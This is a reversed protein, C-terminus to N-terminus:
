VTDRETRVWQSEPKKLFSLYLPIKWLVYLPISLLSRASIEQRGFKAWASLIAVLVLASEILLAIAPLASVGLGAAAAAIVTAGFLLMVLLSLPPIAINLALILLDLRRKDLAAKVLVPVQTMLTQLHGHEWRTRQGKAVQDQRPLMGYVIAGECLQTPSGAIALDIGLQMDEVINGSALPATRILEWPFAMGTGTLHCPFGLHTLGTPRVLNKVMFALASVATKAATGRDLSDPREMLYVAQAPRGTAAAQRTIQTLIGADVRCDADVIAVVDPPDAALFRVGFDIAYGKGRQALNTREIAIAGMERAIAATEDTCNDAVVILRDDVSLQPLLKELVPRIGLAENHAPVLVATRPAVETQAVPRPPLLVAAMCEILLVAVPLIFLLAIAGLCVQVLWVLAGTFLIKVKESELPQL